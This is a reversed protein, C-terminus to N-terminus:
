KKKWIGCNLYEMLLAQFQLSGMLHLLLHLYKEDSRRLLTAIKKGTYINWIYLTKDGSASIAFMGDSTIM